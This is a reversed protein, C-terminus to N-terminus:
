SGPVLPFTFAGVRNSPAALLGSYVARVVYYTSHATNGIVGTDPDVFTPSTLGTEYATGPTFYPADQARYVNYSVGAISNGDTDLAVATWDLRLNSGSRSARVETVTRPAAAPRLYGTRLTVEGGSADGVVPQGLTDNLTVTGGGSAAGGGSVVWWPVAPGGQASVGGTVLLLALFAALGILLQRNM